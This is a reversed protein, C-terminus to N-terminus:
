RQPEVLNQRPSNPVSGVGGFTTEADELLHTAGDVAEAVARITEDPLLRNLGDGQLCLDDGEEKGGGSCTEGERGPSDPVPPDLRPALSGKWLVLGFGSPQSMSWEGVYWAPAAAAAAVTAPSPAADLTTKSVALDGPILPM